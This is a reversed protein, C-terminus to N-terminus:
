VAGRVTLVVKQHDIRVLLVVDRMEFEDHPPDAIRDTAIRIALIDDRQAQVALRGLDHPRVCPENPLFAFEGPQARVARRPRRM